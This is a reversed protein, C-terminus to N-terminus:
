DIKIRTDKKIQSLLKILHEKKLAICGKTKEYSNKAVHIFIASGKNKIIPNMNYNSVLILDYLNDNRYLKEHSFKSPLKIQKNYFKSNPDDCWGTNKKIKLKKISTTINKVKDDRYYVKIIKFEGKPTINDGEKKKKKIGAEGLACRFKLNKYKLYGTKKVIIM